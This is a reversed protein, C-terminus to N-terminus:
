LDPESHKESPVPYLAEYTRKEEKGYIAYANMKTVGFPLFFEPIKAQGNWYNSCIQASYEVALGRKKVKRIGDLLL